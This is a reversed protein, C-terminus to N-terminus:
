RYREPHAPEYPRLKIGPRVAVGADGVSGQVFFPVWTEWRGPKDEDDDAHAAHHIRGIESLTAFIRPRDAETLPITQTAPEDGHGRLTCEIAYPTVKIGADGLEGNEDDGDLLGAPLGLGSSGLLWPVEALVDRPIPIGAGTDRTALIERARDAADSAPYLTVVARLLSADRPDAAARKLMDDAIEDQLEHVKDPDPDPLAQYHLLARDWRESREYARVLRRRVQAAERGHPHLALYAEGETIVKENSAPDHRWALVARTLVGIANTIGLAPLGAVGQAGTQVASRLVGRSSPGTGLLVYRAVDRGHRRDAAEVEDAEADPLKALRHRAAAAGPGDGDALEDLERRAADAHGALARATAVVLRTGPVNPGDPWGATLRNAALIMRAPDALVTASAVRAYAHWEAESRPLRPSEVPWRAAEREARRRRLADGVDRRVGALDDADCAAAPSRLLYDASDLRGAEFADKARARLLRCDNRRVRRDLRRAAEADDRGLRGGPAERAAAGYAALAEHERLSPRDRHRIHTAATFVSDLASGALLIPNVFALLNTGLGFPRLTDNVAAAWRDHREDGLLASAIAAPDTAELHRRVREGRPGEWADLLDDMRDLREPGAPRMAALLRLPPALASAAAPPLREIAGAVDTEEGALAAAVVDRVVGATRDQEAALDDLLPAATAAGAVGAALLACALARRM